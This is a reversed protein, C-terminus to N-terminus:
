ARPVVFVADLTDYPVTMDLDKIMGFDYTMGCMGLEATGYVLDGAIGGWTYNPYIILCEGDPTPLFRASASLRRNVFNLLRINLGDEYTVDAEAHEAHPL